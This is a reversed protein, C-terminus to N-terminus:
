VVAVLVLHERELAHRLILGVVLGVVGLTTRLVLVVLVVNVLNMVGSESESESSDLSSSSSSPHPVFFLAYRLLDVRLVLLRDLELLLLRLPQLRLRPLDHRLVIEAKVIDRLPCGGEREVEVEARALLVDVARVEEARVRDERAEELQLLGERREFVEVERRRGVVVVVLGAEGLLIVVEGDVAVTVQAHAVFFQHCVRLVEPCPVLQLLAALAQLAALELVQEALRTVEHVRVVGGGAGRRLLRLALLLGRRLLGRLLLAFRGVRVGLGDRGDEVEDLGVERLALPPLPLPAAVVISDASSTYPSADASSTASAASLCARLFDSRKWTARMSLVAARRAPAREAAMPPSSSMGYRSRFFSFSARSAFSTAFARSPAPASRSSTSGSSSAPAAFDFFRLRSSLSLSSSPPSASPYRAIRLFLPRVGLRELDTRLGRTLFRCFYSFAFFFTAECFATQPHDINMANMGAEGASGPRPTVSAMHNLETEGAQAQLYVRKIETAQDACEEYAYSYQELGDICNSVEPRGLRALLMGAQICSVHMVACDLKLYGNSALVGALGAIRLAGHLAENAVKRKKEEIHAHQPPSMAEPTGARTVDNLERIGFDDMANFLIIWMIHYTADSAGARVTLWEAKRRRGAVPARQPSSSGCATVASVFDWAAPFATPVGVHQLYEDRWENLMDMITTLVDAPIGDSETAPRWLQRAMQRAIRALAHAAKYYGELQERPSPQPAQRESETPPPPVPGVTYFDIDYDDDDLMPKRRYYVSRYADALCAMWWAFIMTGRAEPDHINSMVSKHNIQLDLLLRIASGLWFGHFRSQLPEILLSIVVHDANPIRHVKMDEALDRARNILVKAFASQGGNRHRDAVFLPHESFKAGWAIVTAVLAPHLPRQPQQQSPQGGLPSTSDRTRQQQAIPTNPSSAGNQSGTSSLSTHLRSRFQVPNLLPLRSHVIQFFVEVLDLAFEIRFSEENLRHALAGWESYPNPSPSGGVRYHASGNVQGSRSAM